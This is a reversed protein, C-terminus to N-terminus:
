QTKKYGRRNKRKKKFLNFVELGLRSSCFYFLTMTKSPASLSRKVYSTVDDVGVLNELCTVNHFTLRLENQMCIDQITQTSQDHYIPPPLMDMQSEMYQFHDKYLSNLMSSFSNFNMELEHLLRDPAAGELIYINGYHDGGTTVNNHGEVHQELRYEREQSAYGITCFIVGISLVDIKIKCM